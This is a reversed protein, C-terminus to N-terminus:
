SNPPTTWTVPYGVGHRSTPFIVFVVSIAFGTLPPVVTVVYNSVNPYFCDTIISTSLTSTAFVLVSLSAHIFDVFKLKYQLRNKPGKLLQPTWLGDCTAFGYHVKGDPARFSDTFSIIFCSLGCGFLLLGTLWRDFTGCEGSNSVIPSLIQFALVTGTPLLNALHAASQCAKSLVYTTRTFVEEIESEETEDSGMVLKETSM